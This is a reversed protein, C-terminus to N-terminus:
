AEQLDRHRFRAVGIAVGIAGVALMTLLPLVDPSQAPVAALQRFPSLDLVADPLELVGGVFDVLYATVVLGYTIPTALRPAFGFVAIGVGLAAWAVPVTNAGAALADGITIPTGVIATSGWVIAAAVAALLVAGVAAVLVRTVLWRVRGLPRVLLHEIRWTAEEERISAVQGAAFVALLLAVISFTFAVIGEATDIGVWGLQDGLEVMTPLDAVAESFDRALLGFALTVLGIIAAWTRLGAGTLRVALSRHGALPRPAFSPEDAAGGIWGADLDRRALAVAMGVLVVLLASLAGFVAPWAADAPHLYGVWGFPTTWWVWEPTVSAAALLRLGLLVGLLGGVLGVARRYSTALHSALVGATAFSATLLAMSGGLAWSTAPDMGAATHSTGVAVAFLAHTTALAVMASATLGRPSVVGARLLELHGREEARRLLRAGALMGWVAALIAFMGWRSLTAGEVTTLQVFRGLMAEFAPIGEMEAFLALEEPTTYRDEYTTVVGVSVLTLGCIWAIAANRLLRLHHRYLRFWVQTPTRATYDTPFAAEGPSGPRTTPPTTTSTM